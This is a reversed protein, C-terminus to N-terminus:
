ETVSNSKIYKKRSQQIIGAGSVLYVGANPISGQYRLATGAFARGM